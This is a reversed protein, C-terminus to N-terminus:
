QITVGLKKAVWLAAGIGGAGLIFQLTRDLITEWISKRVASLIEGKRNWEARMERNDEARKALEVWHTGVDSWEVGLARCMKQEMMPEVLKRVQDANRRDHLEQRESETWEPV